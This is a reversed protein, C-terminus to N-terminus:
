QHYACGLVFRKMKSEVVEAVVNDKAAQERTAKLYRFKAHIWLTSCKKEINAKYEEALLIKLNSSSSSSCIHSTTSFSTTSATTHTPNKIIYDDIINNSSAKENIKQIIPEWCTDEAQRHLSYYAIMKGKKGERSVLVVKTLKAAQNFRKICVSKISAHTALRGAPEVIYDALREVVDQTEVQNGNAALELLLPSM